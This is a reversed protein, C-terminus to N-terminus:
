YPFAPTGRGQFRGMMGMLGSPSSLRASCLNCWRAPQGEERWIRCAKSSLPTGMDWVLIWSVRVLGSRGALPATSIIVSTRASFIWPASALASISRSRPRHFAAVGALWGEGKTVGSLGVVLVGVEGSGQQDSLPDVGLLHPALLSFATVGFGHVIEADKQRPLALGFLGQGPVPARSVNAERLGHVEEAGQEFIPSFTVYQICRAAWAPWISAM